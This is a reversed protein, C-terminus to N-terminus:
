SNKDLFWSSNIDIGSDFLKMTLDGLEKESSPEIRGSSISAVLNFLSYKCGNQAAKRYWLASLNPDCKDMLTGDYVLALWSMAITEGLVADRHLADFALNPRIDCFQFNNRDERSSQTYRIFTDSCMFLENKWIEFIMFSAGLVGEKSLKKLAPVFLKKSKSANIIEILRVLEEDKFDNINILPYLRLLSM